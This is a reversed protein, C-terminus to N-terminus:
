SNKLREIAAIIHPKTEPAYNPNDILNFKVIKGLIDILISDFM